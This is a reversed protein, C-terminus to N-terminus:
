PQFHPATRPDAELRVMFDDMLKVLGPKEGFTRYLQADAPAMQAFATGCVCLILAILTKKM